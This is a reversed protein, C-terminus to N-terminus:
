TKYMVSTLIAATTGPSSCLTTSKRQHSYLLAAVLITSNFYWSYKAARRSTSLHSSRAVFAGLQGEVRLPCGLAVPFSLLSMPSWLVAWFARLRTCASSWIALRSRTLACPLNCSHAM